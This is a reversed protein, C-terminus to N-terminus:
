SEQPTEFRTPSDIGMMCCLGSILIILLVITVFLAELLSKKIQCVGDCFVFDLSANGPTEALLRGLQYSSPHQIPNYSDSVYLVAYKAGSNDLSSILESFVAGEPQPHDRNKLPSFGRHCVVLLNTRGKIGKEMTSAVYEQVSHMDKLVSFQKNDEISCSDTVAISGVGMKRDCSEEFEELLCNELTGEEVKASVYPYAMSFNSKTFSDKLLHLLSADSADKGSIDSSQLERGVFVVAVDVPQHSSKGECMINSWSGDSMVAKGLDKSSLTQYNVNEELEMDIHPSWMFAPGTSELSMVSCLQSIILLVVLGFKKM